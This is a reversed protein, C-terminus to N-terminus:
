IKNIIQEAKQYLEINNNIIKKTEKYNVTINYGSDFIRKNEYDKSLDTEIFNIIKEFEENTLEKKMTIFNGNKLEEPIKHYYQYVYLKKDSTILTGAYGSNKLGWWHSIKLIANKELEKIKEEM